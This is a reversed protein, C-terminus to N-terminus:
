FRLVRFGTLRCTFWRDTIIRNNPLMRKNHDFKINRIVRLLCSYYYYGVGVVDEEQNTVVFIIIIVYIVIIIIIIPGSMTCRIRLKVGPLDQL